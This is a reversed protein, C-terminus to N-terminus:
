PRAVVRLGRRQRDRTEEVRVWVATGRDTMVRQAGIYGERSQYFIGIKM